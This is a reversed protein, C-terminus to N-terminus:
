ASAREPKKGGFFARIRDMIGPAKAPVPQSAPQTDIRPQTAEPGPQSSEPGKLGAVASHVAAKYDPNAAKLEATVAAAETMAKSVMPKPEQPAAVAEPQAAAARQESLFEAFQTDKKATFETLNLGSDALGAASHLPRAQAPM